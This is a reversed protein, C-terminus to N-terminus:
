NCKPAMRALFSARDQGLLGCNEPVWQLQLCMGRGMLEHYAEKFVLACPHENGTVAQYAARSQTFVVFNGIPLHSFQGEALKAVARSVARTQADLVDGSTNPCTEEFYLCHVAFANSTGETFVHLWKSLPYHNKLNSAMQEINPWTSPQTQNTQNLVKFTYPKKPPTQPKKPVQPHATKRHLQREHISVFKLSCWTCKFRKLVRPPRQTAYKSVQRVQLILFKIIIQPKQFINLNQV